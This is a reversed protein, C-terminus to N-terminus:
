SLVVFRELVVILLGVTMVLVVSWYLHRSESMASPERLPIPGPPTRDSWPERLQHGLLLVILLLALALGESGAPQPGKREFLFVIVPLTNM